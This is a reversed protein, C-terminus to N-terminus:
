IATTRRVRFPPRATSPARTKPDKAHAKSLGACPSFRFPVRRNRLPPRATSPARRSRTYAPLRRSPEFGEREALRNSYDRSFRNSRSVRSELHGPCGCLEARCFEHIASVRKRFRDRSHGHFRFLFEIFLERKHSSLPEKRFAEKRSSVIDAQFRSDPRNTEIKERADKWTAPLVPGLFPSFPWANCPRCMKGDYLVSKCSHRHIGQGIDLCPCAYRYQISVGPMKRIPIMQTHVFRPASFIHFDM